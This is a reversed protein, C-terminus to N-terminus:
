SVFAEIIVTKQLTGTKTMKIKWVPLTGTEIMMMIMILMMMMYDDNVHIIAKDERQWCVCACVCVCVYVNVVSRYLTNTM